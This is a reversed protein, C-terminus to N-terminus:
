DGGTRETVGHRTVDHSASYGVNVSNMAIQCYNFCQPSLVMFSANNSAATWITTPPDNPIM